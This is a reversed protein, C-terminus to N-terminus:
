TGKKKAHRKFMEVVARTDTARKVEPPPPPELYKALPKLNKVYHM